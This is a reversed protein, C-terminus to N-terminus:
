KSINTTISRLSSKMSENYTIIYLEDWKSSVPTQKKLSTNTENWSTPKGNEPISVLLRYDHREFNLSAHSKAALLVYTNLQNELLTMRDFLLILGIIASALVIFNIINFAVTRTRMTKSCEQHGQMSIKRQINLVPVHRQQRKPQM